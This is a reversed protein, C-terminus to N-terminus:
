QLLGAESLLKDCEKLLTSPSKRLCNPSLSILTWYNCYDKKNFLRMRLHDHLRRRLRNRVVAKKSVKNSISIACKCSSSGMTEKSGRILNNRAKSVKLSMSAGRFRKSSKHIYDFCKYGKLRMAKPLVM